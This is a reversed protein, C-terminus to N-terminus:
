PALVVTCGTSWSLPLQQHGWRQTVQCGLCGRHLISPPCSAPANHLPPHNAGLAWDNLYHLGTQTSNPLGRTASSVWVWLPDMCDWWCKVIDFGIKATHRLGPINLIQIYSKISQSRTMDAANDQLYLNLVAVHCSMCRGRGKLTGNELCQAGWSNFSFFSQTVSAGDCTWRLMVHDVSFTLSVTEKGKVTIIKM